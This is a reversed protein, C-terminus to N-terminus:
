EVCGYIDPDTNVGFTDKSYAFASEGVGPLAEVQYAVVTLYVVLM